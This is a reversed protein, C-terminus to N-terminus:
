GTGGAGTRVWGLGAALGAGWGTTAGGCVATGDGAASLAGGAECISADACCADAKGGGAAPALVGAVLKVRPPAVGSEELEGM